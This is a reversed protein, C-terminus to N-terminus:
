VRRAHAPAEQAILPRDLEDLVAHITAAIEEASATRRPHPDQRQRRPLSRDATIAALAGTSLRARVAAAQAPDSLDIGERELTTAAITRLRQAPLSSLPAVDARVTGPIIEGRVRTLSAPLERHFRARATTTEFPSRQDTPSPQRADVSGLLADVAGVLATIAVTALLVRAISVAHQPVAAAAVGAVVVAGAAVSSATWARSATM